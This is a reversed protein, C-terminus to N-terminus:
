VVGAAGQGLQNTLMLIAMLQDKYKARSKGQVETKLSMQLHHKAKTLTM